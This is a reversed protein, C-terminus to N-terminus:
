GRCRSSPRAGAAKRVTRRRPLIALRHTPGVTGTVGNRRRPKRMPRAPVGGSLNGLASVAQARQFVPRAFMPGHQVAHERREGRELFAQGAAQRQRDAHDPRQSEVGSAVCQVGAAPWAFAPAPVIFNVHRERMGLAPQRRRNLAPEGRDGQGAAHPRMNQGVAHRAVAAEHKGRRALGDAQGVPHILLSFVHRRPQGFPGRRARLTGFRGRVVRRRAQEAPVRNQALDLRVDDARHTVHQVAEGRAVRAPRVHHRAVGVRQVVGIDRLAEGRLRADRRQADKQFGVHAAVLLRAVGEKPLRPVALRHQRFGVHRVRHQAPHQAHLGRVDHRQLVRAEVARLGAAHQGHGKRRRGRNGSDKRGRSLVEAHDAGAAHRLHRRLGRGTAQM